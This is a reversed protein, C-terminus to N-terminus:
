KEASKQIVDGKQMSEKKKKAYAKAKALIEKKQSCECNTCKCKM